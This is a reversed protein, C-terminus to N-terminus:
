TVSYALNDPVPQISQLFGNAPADLGAATTYVFHLQAGAPYKVKFVKYLAVDVGVQQIGQEDAASDHALVGNIFVMWTHANFKTNHETNHSDFLSPDYKYGKIGVSCQAEGGPALNFSYKKLVKWLHTLQVSDTLYSLISTGATDSANDALGNTYATAPGISTDDKVRLCYVTAKCNSQYNNRLTLTSSASIFDFTRQFSGTAGSVVDLTAPDQIDYYRCQAIVTENTSANNIIYEGFNQLNNAALLRGAVISRYTLTGLASNVRKTLTNVKKTLNKPRSRRGRSVRGTRRKRGSFAVTSRTATRIFPKSQRAPAKRGSLARGMKWMGYAAANGVGYGAGSIFRSAARRLNRRPVGNQAYWDAMYLIDVSLYNKSFFIFLQVM